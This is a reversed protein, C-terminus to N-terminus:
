IAKLSLDFNAHSHTLAGLSIFDVGTRAFELVNQQDIGGSAETQFRKNIRHVAEKLNESTFNDLLIRDVGGISLVQELEQQNRVEIEIKLPKGTKYLYDKVMKLANSIGGAFDIHNDKILIMDYLGFRHNIGGGIFVAWKELYRFGPTTKRTDLIRTGTGNLIEVINQTLSAIGSMRQMCNLVIRESKLISHVSGEVWFAIDGSSVKQGDYLNPIIKLDKDIYDFFLEALKIGAITGKDKILLKAKGKTETPITALTTHDGDGLDEEYVNKFFHTLLSLDPQFYPDYM